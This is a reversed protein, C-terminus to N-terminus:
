PDLSPQTNEPGTQPATTAPPATAAPAPQPETAAPEQAPAAAAPDPAPAAAADPAVDPTADDAPPQPETEIVLGGAVAREPIRVDVYTAGASSEQALVAAAADWKVDLRAAGGLWIAPGNELQAVYGKGPQITIAGVEALLAPPAAAAVAVRDLAPGSRLRGGQPVATTTRVEPVSGSMEVGELLTGDAAVPVRGSDSAVIAVPRNEVVEITLGHPFDPHIRLSHVVPHDAVISRLTSEDLHLTSQRLAEAELEARLRGANPTTALGTVEVREVRVLSSDRFWFTYAAGLAVALLVLVVLRRRWHAGFPRVRPLRAFARPLM